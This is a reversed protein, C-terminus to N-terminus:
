MDVRVVGRQELLTKSQTRPSQTVVLLFIRIQLLRSYEIDNKLRNRRTLSMLTTLPPFTPSLLTQLRHHTPPHLLQCPDTMSHFM